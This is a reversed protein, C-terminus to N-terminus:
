SLPNGTVFGDLHWLSDDQFTMIYASRTNPTGLLVQTQVDHGFASGWLMTPRGGTADQIVYLKFPLGAGVTGTPNNVTVQAAQNLILKQCTGGGMNPTVANAVISFVAWGGGTGTTTRIGLAKGM